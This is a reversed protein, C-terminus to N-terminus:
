TSPSHSKDIRPPTEDILQSPSITQLDLFFSFRSPALVCPFVRLTRCLRWPYHFGKAGTNKAIREDPRRPPNSPTPPVAMKKNKRSARWRRIGLWLLRLPIYIIIAVPLVLLVLYIAVGALFKLTAILAQVADRAVGAPQWSGISLPAVLEEAKLQVNVASM